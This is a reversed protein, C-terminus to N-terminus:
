LMGGEDPLETELEATELKETPLEEGEIVADEVPGLFSGSLQEQESDMRKIGEQLAEYGDPNLLSMSNAIEEPSLKGMKSERPNFVVMPIDESMAQIMFYMALPPKILEAVDPTWFGESFGVFSITNVIYEIPIGSAIQSLQAEKLEADDELRGIMWMVAEDPDSYEAPKEYKQSGPEVTLSQGPVPASFPDIAEISGPQPEAGQAINDNAKEVEYRM